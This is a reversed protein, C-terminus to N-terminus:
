GPAAKAKLIEAVFPELAAPEFGAAPEHLLTAELTRFREM